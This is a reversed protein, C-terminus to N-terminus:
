RIGFRAGVYVAPGKPSSFARFGEAEFDYQRLRLFFQKWGLELEANWTLGHGSGDIFVYTPGAGALFWTHAGLEHRWVADLHSAYVQGFDTLDAHEVAAHVGFVRGRVLAEVGVLVRPTDQVTEYSQQGIAVGADVHIQQQAATPLSLALLILLVLSRPM